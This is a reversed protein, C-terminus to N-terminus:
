GPAIPGAVREVRQGGGLAALAEAVTRGDPLTLEPDLEFLPELVFRRAALEPHPVRIGNGAVSLDGLLLLDVDISRPGHRRVGQERGLAREVRRCAALLERPELETRARAVANLFDPQDPV